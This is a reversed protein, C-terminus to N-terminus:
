SPKATQPNTAIGCLFEPVAILLAGSRLADMAAPGPPVRLVLSGQYPGEAVIEAQHARSWSVAQAMGGGDFPLFVAPGGGAPSLSIAIVGAAIMGQLALPGPVFRTMALPRAFKM